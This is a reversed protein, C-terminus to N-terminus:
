DFGHKRKYKEGPSLSQERVAQIQDFKRRLSEPSQVVFSFDDNQLNPGYLWTIVSEIDELARGDIRLLYDMVKAWKQINPKKFNPLHELIKSLLLNSLRVEDSTEVYLEKKKDNKDNKDNKIMRTQTLNNNPQQSTTTLNNHPQQKLSQYEDWNIITIISYKTHSNINLNEMNELKQMWNWLTSPSKNNKKKRPYYSEHLAFRGTIFQGPMVKVPETLGEVNTWNEVHNAKILCLSWLKFLGSNAFVQSDIVKRHLKIWGDV